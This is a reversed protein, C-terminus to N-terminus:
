NSSCSLPPYNEHPHFVELAATTRGIGTHAGGAVVFLAGGVSVVAQGHRPTPMNPLSRWADSAPDYRVTYPLVGEAGQTGLKEGGFVYFQGGVVGGNLGGGAYPMPTLSEWRDTAPNYRDLNAMNGGKMTRGGAVYILGDIVGVAASNRPTPLPAARSWTNSQIDYVQHWNVDKFETWRSANEVTPTRGGIIHIRGDYEVAMAETQIEPMHTVLSWGGQRDLAYVEPRAQWIGAEGHMFGGVAYIRGGASVMLPHHRAAPLAPGESWTQAQPDYIGTRDLARVTGDDALSMGGAIIVKGDRAAGYVEQVRWPVDACHEWRGRETENSNAVQGGGQAACMTCTLLSVSILLTRSFAKFKNM